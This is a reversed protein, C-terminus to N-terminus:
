TRVQDLLERPTRWPLPGFLTHEFVAALARLQDEDSVPWRLGNLVMVVADPKSMPEEAWAPFYWAALPYRGPDVVPELRAPQPLGDVLDDFRAPPLRPPEVLVEGTNPDIDVWPADHLLVGGERLPREFKPLSQRMSDPLVTARGDHVALIGDARLLRSAPAGHGGLHLAIARRFREPDRTRVVTCGGWQLRHFSRRDNSFWVSYNHNAVRDSHWPELARVFEDRPGDGRVAIGVAVHDFEISM